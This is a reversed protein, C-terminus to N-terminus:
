PEKGRGANGSRVPVVLGDAMQGLRSRDERVRRQGLTQRGQASLCVERTAGRNEGCTGGGSGRHSRWTNRESVEGAADAKGTLM